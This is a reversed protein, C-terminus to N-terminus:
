NAKEEIIARLAPRIYIKDLNLQKLEQAMISIKQDITLKNNLILVRKDSVTCLGGQFDGKEYRIIISLNEILSEFGQLILEKRM